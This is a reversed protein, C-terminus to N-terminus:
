FIRGTCQLVFKQSHCVLKLCKKVPMRRSGVLVCLGRAAIRSLVLMQRLIGNLIMKISYDPKMKLLCWMFGCSQIIFAMTRYLIGPLTKCIEMPVLKDIMQATRWQFKKTSLYSLHINNGASTILVAQRQASHNDVEFGQSFQCIM